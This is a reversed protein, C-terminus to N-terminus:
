KRYRHTAHISNPRYDERRNIKLKAKYWSVSPIFYAKPEHSSFAGAFIRIFSMALIVLITGEM